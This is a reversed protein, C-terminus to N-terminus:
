RFPQLVPVVLRSSHSRRCGDTYQVGADLELAPGGAAGDTPTVGGEVSWLRAGLRMGAGTPSVRVMEKREALM